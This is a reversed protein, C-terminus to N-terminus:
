VRLMIIGFTILFLNLCIKYDKFKPMRIVNLTIYIYFDISMKTINIANHFVHEM